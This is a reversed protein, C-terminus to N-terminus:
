ISIAKITSYLYKSGILNDIAVKLIWLLNRLGQKYNTQKKAPHKKYEWRLFKQHSCSQKITSDLIRKLCSRNMSYIPCELLFLKHTQYVLLLWIKKSEFLQKMDTQLTCPIKLDIKNPFNIKSLNCLYTLPFRYVYKSDIQAAFKDERDELNDNTRFAEMDNNHSRRDENGPIIVTKKSYLLDKEIM